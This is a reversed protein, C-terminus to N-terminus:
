RRQVQGGGLRREQEQRDPAQAVRGRRGEALRAPGGLLLQAAGQPRLHQGLGLLLKARDGDDRWAPRGLGPVEARQALRDAASAPHPHLVLGQTSDGLMHEVRGVEVGAVAVPVACGDGELRLLLPAVAKIADVGRDGGQRGGAGVLGAAGGGSRPPGVIVGRVRFHEDTEGIPADAQRLISRVPGTMDLPDAGEDPLQAKAAWGALQRVEGPLHM